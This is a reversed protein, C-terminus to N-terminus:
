REWLHSQVDLLVLRVTILNYLIKYLHIYQLLCEEM